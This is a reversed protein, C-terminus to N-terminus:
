PILAGRRDGSSAGAETVLATGAIAAGAAGGSSSGSGNSVGSGPLGPGGGAGGNGGGGCGDGGGAGGATATGSQGMSAVGGGHYWGQGPVTGAGGGGGGGGSSTGCVNCGGAGGGGGGWLEAGASDLRLPTAVHLATGGSQGHRTPHCYTQQGGGNGGNGGAGQIRGRNILRVLSGPPLTDTSFAPTSVSSAGITVGPAITVTVEVSTTGNWGYPAAMLLTRLNVDNRSSSIVVDYNSLCETSPAFTPPALAAVDHGQAAVVNTAYFSANATGGSSAFGAIDPFLSDVRVGELPYRTSTQLNLVAPTGSQHVFWRGSVSRDQASGLLASNMASTGPYAPLHIEHRPSTGSRFIFLDFPAQSGDLSVPPSFNVELELRQGSQRAENPRSNIRGSASAFLERLNTSLVMTANGDPELALPTSWAGGGVRRRATAATRAAPLQLGLGNSLDGGLAVPDFAAHLSVVANSANRELRYHVRVAVDNYDLDTHGPWQDEYTLLASTSSGPYWSVASRTVDCPFADTGNSVGDGDADQALAPSGSLALLASLGFAQYRIRDM